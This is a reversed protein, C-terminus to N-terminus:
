FLRKSARNYGHSNALHNMTEPSLEFDHIRVNQSARSMSVLVAIDVETGIQSSIASNHKQKMNRVEHVIPM